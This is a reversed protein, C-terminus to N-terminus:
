LAVSAKVLVLAGIAFLIAGTLARAHIHPPTLKEILVAAAVLLAWRLGMSGATVLVAMLLACCGMCYVAHRTGMQIAGFTHPQWHHALFGVPNSCKTLCLQKTRSFQYAGAAILVASTAYPAARHVDPHAVAFASLLVRAVYVPVGTMSWLTLYSGVFAVTRVLVRGPTRIRSVTSFLSIMPTASPLMMATMMLLWGSLFKVADAPLLHTGAMASMSARTVDHSSILSPAHEMPRAFIELWAFAATGLVAVAAVKASRDISWGSIGPDAPRGM